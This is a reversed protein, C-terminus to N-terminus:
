TADTIDADEDTFSITDLAKGKKEPYLPNPKPLFFLCCIPWKIMNFVIYLNIARDIDINRIYRACQDREDCLGGDCMETNRFLDRM